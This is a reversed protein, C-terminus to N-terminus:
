RRTNQWVTEFDSQSVTTTTSLSTVDAYGDIFLGSRVGGMLNYNNGVGSRSVTASGSTVLNNNDWLYYNASDGDGSLGYFYWKDFSISETAIEGGPRHAWVIAPTDRMLISWGEGAANPDYAPDGTGCNVVGSNNDTTSDVYIWGCVGYQTGNIGFANDSQWYDDIGDLVPVTDGTAGSVNTWNGGNNLTAPQSGVSDQLTTGSGEDMRWQNTIADPIAIGSGLIGARASGVPM